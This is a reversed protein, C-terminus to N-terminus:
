IVVAVVVAVVKSVVKPGYRMWSKPFTGAKFPTIALAFMFVGRLEMNVLGVVIV